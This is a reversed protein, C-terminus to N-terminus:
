DNMFQNLTKSWVTSSSEDTYSAFSIFWILHILLLCNFSIIIYGKQDIGFIVDQEALLLCLCDVILLQFFNHHIRKSWNCLDCRTWGFAFLSLKKLTVKQSFWGLSPISVERIRKIKPWNTSSLWLYFYGFNPKHIGMGRQTIANWIKSRIAMLIPFQQKDWKQPGLIDKCCLNGLSRHCPFCLLAWISKM